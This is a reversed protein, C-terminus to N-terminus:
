AVLWLTEPRVKFRFPRRAGEAWEATHLGNVALWRGRSDPEGERVEAVTLYLASEPLGREAARKRMWLSVERPPPMIVDGVALLEAKKRTV